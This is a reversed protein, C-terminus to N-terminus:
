RAEPLRRSPHLPGNPTSPMLSPPLAELYCLRALLGKGPHHYLELRWGQRAAFQRAICLGLGRRERPDARPPLQNPDLQAALDPPMGGGNDIVEIRRGGRRFALIVRPRTVARAHYRLANSLLNRLVVGMLAGDHMLHRGEGYFRLGIGNRAALPAFCHRLDRALPAISQTLCRAQMANQDLQALELAKALMETVQWHIQDIQHSVRVLQTAAQPELTEAQYRLATLYYGLASLPQHLDHGILELLRARFVQVEEAQHQRQKAEVAALWVQRYQRAQTVATYHSFSVLGFIIFPSYVLLPDGPRSWRTLLLFQLGLLLANLLLTRRWLVLFTYYATIVFIYLGLLFGPTVLVQLQPHHYSAIVSNNSLMCFLFFYQAWPSLPLHNFIFAIIILLSLIFIARSALRWHLVEPYDALVQLDVGILLCELVCIIATVYRDRRVFNPESADLFRRELDPDIFGGSLWHYAPATARGDHDPPAPLPWSEGSEASLTANASCEGPVRPPTSGHANSIM